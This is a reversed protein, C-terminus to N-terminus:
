TLEAILAGNQYLERKVLCAKKLTQTVYCDEM